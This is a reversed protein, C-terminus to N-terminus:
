FLQPNSPGYVYLPTKVFGLSFIPLSYIVRLFKRLKDLLAFTEAPGGRGNEAFLKEAM